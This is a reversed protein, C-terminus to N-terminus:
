VEIPSLANSVTHRWLDLDSPQFKAYDGGSADNFESEFVYFSM